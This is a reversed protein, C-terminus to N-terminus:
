FLDDDSVTEDGVMVFDDDSGSGSSLPGHTRAPAETGFAESWLRVKPLREAEGVMEFDESSASPTASEFSRKFPGTFFDLIDQGDDDMQDSAITPPTSVLERKGTGRASINRIAEPPFPKRTQLTFSTAGPPNNCQLEFPMEERAPPLEVPVPRVPLEMLRQASQLATSSDKEPERFAGDDDIPDNWLHYLFDGLARSTIADFTTAPKAPLRVIDMAADDQFGRSLNTKCLDKHFAQCEYALVKFDPDVGLKHYLFCSVCYHCFSEIIKQQDALSDYVFQIARVLDTPAAPESCAMGFEMSIAGHVQNALDPVDYFQALQYVHTHLLLSIRHDQLDEPIYHGCYAYRLLSAVAEPSANEISHRPGSRSHEFALALLPCREGIVELDLGEISSFTNDSFLVSLTAKRGTRWSGGRACRDNLFALSDM